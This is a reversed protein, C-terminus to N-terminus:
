APDTFFERCIYGSIRHTKPLNQGIQNVIRDFKCFGSFNFNTKKSINNLMFLHFEM